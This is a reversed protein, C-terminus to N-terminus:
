NKLISDLCMLLANKFEPDDNLRIKQVYKLERKKDTTQDFQILQIPENVLQQQLRIQRYNPISSIFPDNSATSNGILTPIETTKDDENDTRQRKTVQYNELSKASISHIHKAHYKMHNRQKFQKM